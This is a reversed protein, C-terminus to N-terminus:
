GCCVEGAAGNQTRDSDGCESLHFVAARKHKGCHREQKGNVLEDFSEHPKTQIINQRRIDGV